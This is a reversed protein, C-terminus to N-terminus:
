AAPRERRARRKAPVPAPRTPAVEPIEKVAAKRGRRPRAATSAPQASEIAAVVSSLAPTPAIMELVQAPTASVVAETAKKRPRRPQKDKTATAATETPAAEERESDDDTGIWFCNRGISQLPRLEIAAEASADEPNVLCVLPQRGFKAVYREHAEAIKTAVPKKRDADFWALYM